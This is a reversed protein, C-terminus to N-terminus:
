FEKKRMIRNSIVYSIMMVILLTVMIGGILIVELDVGQNSLKVLLESVYGKVDVNLVETLLKYCGMGAVAIIAVSAIMAMRGKEVGFKFELPMTLAVVVGMGLGMGVISSLLDSLKVDLGKVLAFGYCVALSMGMAFLLNILSFIYKEKVYTKRDVPLSLLFLMGGNVDDYSLTTLTLMSLFLIIYTAAFTVDGSSFVFIAAIFIAMIFFKKQSAILKLDKIFLGKM